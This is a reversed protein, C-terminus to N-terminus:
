RPYSKSPSRSKPSSGPPPYSMGTSRTRVPRAKKKSEDYEQQQLLPQKENYTSLEKQTKKGFIRNKAANLGYAIGGLTAGAGAALMMSMGVGGIVLGAPPFFATTILGAGFTGAGAIATNGMWKMWRGIRSRKAM